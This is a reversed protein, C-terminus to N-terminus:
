RALQRSSKGTPTPRKGRRTSNVDRFRCKKGKDVFGAVTRVVICAAKGDLSVHHSRLRPRNVGRAHLLVGRLGAGGEDGDDYGKEVLAVRQRFEM